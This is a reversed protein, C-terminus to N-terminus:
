YPPPRLSMPKKNGSFYCLKQMITLNSKWFKASSLLTTSGTAWRMQQSYFTRPTNPCVGAALILPVYKVKWGRNIAEFSEPEILLQLSKVHEM